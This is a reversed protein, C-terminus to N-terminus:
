VYANNLRYSKHTDLHAVLCKKLTDSGKQYILISNKLVGM